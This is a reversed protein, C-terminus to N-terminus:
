EVGPRRATAAAWASTSNIGAHLVLPPLLGSSEVRLWTLFLGAVTTLLVAGVVAFGVKGRPAHPDNMRMGIITPAIHWLGFAISACVAAEMGSLGAERWAAFLVGRFVVEETVATGLPIRGAVHWALAAGGLGAVRADAIRHGYRSRAFAHIGIGFVVVMLTVAAVWRLDGGFRLDEVSLEFAGAAVVTVAAAFTLNVPVYAARHFPEWWNVINNYLAAVVSLVLAGWMM